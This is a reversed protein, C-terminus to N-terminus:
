RRKAKLAKPDVRRGIRAAHPVAPLLAEALTVPRDPTRALLMRFGRQLFEDTYKAKAMVKEVHVALDAVGLVRSSAAKTPTLNGRLWVVEVDRRELRAVVDEAVDLVFNSPMRLARALAVLQEVLLDREGREFRSWSTQAVGVAVAFDRQRLDTRARLEVLVAGVITAFTVVDKTPPTSM